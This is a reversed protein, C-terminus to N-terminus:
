STVTSTFGGGQHNLSFYNRPAKLEFDRIIKKLYKVKSIKLVMVQVSIFRDGKGVKV